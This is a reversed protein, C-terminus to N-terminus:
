TYSQSPCKSPLSSFPSLRILSILGLSVYISVSLWSVRVDGSWPPFTEKPKFVSFTNIAGYWWVRSDLIEKLEPPSKLSQIAKNPLKQAALDRKVGLPLNQITLLRGLWRFAESWNFIGKTILRNWLSSLSIPNLLLSHRPLYSGGNKAAQKKALTWNTKPRELPTLFFSM